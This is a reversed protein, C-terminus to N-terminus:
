SARNLEAAEIKKQRASGLEQSAHDISFSNSVHWIKNITDNARRSWTRDDSVCKRRHFGYLINSDDIGFWPPADVGVENATRYGEASRWRVPGNREPFYIGRADTPSEGELPCILCGEKFQHGSHTTDASFMVSHNALDAVAPIDGSAVLVHVKAHIRSNGVDVVMGESQLAELESLIPDLFSWLNRPRNPGPIICMQNMNKVEYRVSPDMNLIVAHVITMSYKHNNKFPQFGDAYLALAIDYESDFLTSTHSPIGPNAATLVSNTFKVLEEHAARPIGYQDVIRQLLISQKNLPDELVNSRTFKYEVSTGTSSMETNSIRNNNAVRTVKNTLENETVDVYDEENASYNDYIDNNEEVPHHSHHEFLSMDIYSDFNYQDSDLDLSTQCNLTAPSDRYMHDEDPVDLDDELSVQPTTIFVDSHGGFAEQSPNEISFSIKRLYHQKGIEFPMHSSSIRRALYSRKGRTISGFCASMSSVEAGLESLTDQHPAVSIEQYLREFLTTM